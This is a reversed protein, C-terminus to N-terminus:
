AAYPNERGKPRCKLNTATHSDQDSEGEFRFEGGPSVAVGEGLDTDSAEREISRLYRFGLDRDQQGAHAARRSRTHRIGHRAQQIAVM